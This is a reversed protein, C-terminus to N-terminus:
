LIWNLKEVSPAIFFEADFKGKSALSIIYNEDGFVFKASKTEYDRTNVESLSKEKGGYKFAAEKQTWLVLSNINEEGKCLIRKLVKETRKENNLPEIDIGADGVAVAVLDHSHSISFNFSKHMPKGKESLFCDRVDASIGLHELAFALLGFSAKKENLVRENSITKFNRLAYEPLVSNEKFDNVAGIYVYAKTLAKM